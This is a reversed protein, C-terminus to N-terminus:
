SKNEMKNSYKNLINLFLLHHNAVGLPFLADTIWCCIIKQQKKKNEQM